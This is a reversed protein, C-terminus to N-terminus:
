RVHRYMALNITLVEVFNFNQEAFTKYNQLDSNLAKEM